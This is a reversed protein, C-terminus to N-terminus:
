SNISVPTAIKINNKKIFDIVNGNKVADAFAIKDAIHKKIVKAAKSNSKITITISM